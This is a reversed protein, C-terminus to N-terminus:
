TTGLSRNTSVETSPRKNEGPGVRPGRILKSIVPYAYTMAIGGLIMAPLIYPSRESRPLSLAYRMLAVSVIFQLVGGVGVLAALSRPRPRLSASVIGGIGGFIVALIPLSSLHLVASTLTNRVVFAAPDQMGSRLFDAHTITIRHAMFALDYSFGFTCLLMATILACWLASWLAMRLHATREYGISGAIAHTFALMALSGGGVVARLSQSGLPSYEFTINACEFIGLLFGAFAGVRMATQSAVTGRSVGLIAAISAGAGIGVSVLLNGFGDETLSAPHLAIACGEVSLLAAGALAAAYNVFRQNGDKMHYERVQYDVV